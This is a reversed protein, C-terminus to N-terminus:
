CCRIGSPVSLLSSVSAAKTWFCHMESSSFVVLMVVVLFATKGLVARYLWDDRGQWTELPKQLQEGVSAATSMKKGAGQSEEPVPVQLQCCAGECGDGVGFFISGLYNSFLNPMHSPLLPEWSRSIQFYFWVWSFIVQM